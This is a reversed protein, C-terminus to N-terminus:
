KYEAVTDLASDIIEYASAISNNIREISENLMPSYDDGCSPETHVLLVRLDPREQALKEATCQALMSTGCKHDVGHFTIVEANM